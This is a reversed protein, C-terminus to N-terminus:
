ERVERGHDIFNKLHLDTRFVKLMEAVPEQAHGGQSLGASRELGFVRWRAGEARIVDLPSVNESLLLACAQPTSSSAHEARLGTGPM